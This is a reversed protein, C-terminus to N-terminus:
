RGIALVIVGAVLAAGGVGLTVWGATSLTNSTDQLQQQEPLTTARHAEALDASGAGLLGAGVFAVAAGGITLAMPAPRGYWSRRAPPRAALVATPPPVARVNKSAEDMQHVLTEVSARQTDDPPTQSLFARYSRAAAGYQGLQRQAQGINFLLAADPKEVYAAQFEHLAGKFDQLNYAKMGHEYRTKAEDNDAYALASLFLMGVVFPRM